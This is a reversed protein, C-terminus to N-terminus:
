DSPQLGIRHIWTISFIVHSRDDPLSVQVTGMFSLLDRGGEENSFEPFDELASYFDELTETITDLAKTLDLRTLEAKQPKDGKFALTLRFHEPLHKALRMPIPRKPKREYSGPWLKRANDGLLDELDNLNQQLRRSTKLLLIASGIKQVCNSFKELKVSDPVHFFLPQLTNSRVSARM